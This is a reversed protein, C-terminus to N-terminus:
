LLCVQSATIGKVEDHEGKQLKKNNMKVEEGRLTNLEEVPWQVLQKKSPDLWVTRPIAQFIYM